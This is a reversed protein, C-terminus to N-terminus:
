FPLDDIQDCAYNTPPQNNPHINDQRVSSDFYLNSKIEVSLNSRNKIKTDAFQKTAINHCFIKKIASISVSPYVLVESCKMRKGDVIDNWYDAKICNWNLENLQRINNFFLTTNAAANGNTFVINQELLLNRDIALIIIDSQLTSRCYLMPNKPNFYFPVYDHISRNYIPELRSRRENVQNDAIDVQTLRENRAYNHSHLGNQLINHLNNKHTMHYLYEIGFSDLFRSERQLNQKCKNGSTEAQRKRAAIKNEKSHSNGLDNSHKKPILQLYAAENFWNWKNIKDSPFILQESIEFKINPREIWVYTNNSRKVIATPKGQVDTSEYVVTLTETATQPVRKKEAEEHKRKELQKKLEEVQRIGNNYHELEERYLLLAKEYTKYDKKIEDQNKFIRKTKKVFQFSQFCLYVGAIGLGVGVLLVIGHMFNEIRYGSALYLTALFGFFLFLISKKLTSYEFRISNIEKYKYIDPKQPTQPPPM